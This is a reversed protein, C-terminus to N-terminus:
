FMIDWSIESALPSHLIVMGKVIDEYKDSPIHTQQLFLPFRFREVEKTTPLDLSIEESSYKQIEKKEWPTFEVAESLLFREIDQKLILVRNIETILPRHEPSLAVLFTGRANSKCVDPIDKEKLTKQYSKLRKKLDKLATQLTSVVAAAGKRDEESNFIWITLPERKYVEEKENVILACKM